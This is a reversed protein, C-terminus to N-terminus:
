PEMADQFCEALRATNKRADYNEEVWRRAATRLREALADDTALRQLAIQWALPLDVDAVLGTREQAIAETTASIPSTVVLTGAAMAEPIVNPLGDRDGSPAIVGTHVLVDAWALQPWVEAPPLQGLLKVQAGLGLRAIEAALEARRPGDGIIRAEFAFGADRLAAYIRLQESLGKKPVLRAICVIRLPNRQRRLPKFAPLQDLGRRIVHIKGANMGREILLQRGMETSAHVFRALALKEMLWWDGGHEYLDYAHAGSSYPIGLIRWLLWGATAPGGAWAGHVLAPPDRRFERYFCGAFGAGLMNEWFNLWGPPRRMIVGEFLDRVIRPRRFCNWPITFLFLPLLKWKNFTRVPLGRFEGGGGWLSYLRLNLGLAQLAAVDRQLFTESTKPFTTYLLAITRPRNEM